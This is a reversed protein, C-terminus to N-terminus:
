CNPVEFYHYNQQHILVVALSNPKPEKKLLFLGAVLRSREVSFQSHRPIHSLAPALFNFHM